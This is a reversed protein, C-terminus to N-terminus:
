NQSSNHCKLTLSHMTKISCFYLSLYFRFQITCTLVALNQFYTKGNKLMMCSIIQLRTALFVLEKFLYFLMLTCIYVLKAAFIFGFYPWQCNMVKTPWSFYINSMTVVFFVMIEGIKRTHFNQPFNRLIEM